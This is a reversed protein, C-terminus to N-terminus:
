VQSQTTALAQQRSDTQCGAQGSLAIFAGLLVGLKLWHKLM